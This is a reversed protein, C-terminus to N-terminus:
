IAMNRLSYGSGAAVDANARSKAEKEASKKRMPTPGSWSGPVTRLCVAPDSRECERSPVVRSRRVSM